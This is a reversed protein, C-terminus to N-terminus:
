LVKEILILSTKYTNNHTSIIITLLLQKHMSPKLILYTIVHMMSRM